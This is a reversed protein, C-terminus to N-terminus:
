QSVLRELHESFEGLAELGAASQVVALSSLRQRTDPLVLDPALELLPIAIFPRQCIEPDPIRLDPEAIVRDAYLILDLDIPRAAHRDEERERGLEAEIRRLVDFKLERPCQTTRLEWVGNYFMPQEPRALPATRYFTSTRTVLAFGKLLSLAAPINAEPGLNSGVAVFAVGSSSPGVTDSHSEVM